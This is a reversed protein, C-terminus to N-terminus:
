TKMKIKSSYLSNSSPNLAMKFCVPFLLKCIEEWLSKNINLLGCSKNIKLLGAVHAVFLCFSRNEKDVEPALAQIVNGKGSWLLKRKMMPSLCFEKGVWCDDESLTSRTDAEM